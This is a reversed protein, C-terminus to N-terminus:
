PRFEPVPLPTGSRVSAVIADVLEGDLKECRKTVRGITAGRCEKRKEQYTYDVVEDNRLATQMPDSLWRWEVRSNRPRRPPQSSVEEEEVTVCSGNWRLADYVGGSAGERAFQADPARYRLVLVEERARVTGPISAGDSANVATVNYQMYLRRWPTHPQFMYLAVDQYVDKCLKDVWRRPPLCVSEGDADSSSGKACEEPLDKTAVHVPYDIPSEAEQPEATACGIASLGSWLCAVAALCTSLHPFTNKAM